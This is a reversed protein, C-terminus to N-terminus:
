YNWVIDNPLNQLNQLFEISNILFIEETKRLYTHKCKNITRYSSFATILINNNM